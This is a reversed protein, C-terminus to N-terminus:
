VLKEFPSIKKKKEKKNFIQVTLWVFWAIELLWHPSSFQSITLIIGVYMYVEECMWEPHSMLLPSVQYVFLLSSHFSSRAYSFTQPKQPRDSYTCLWPCSGMFSVYMQISCRDWSRSDSVTFWVLWDALQVCLLVEGSLVQVQGTQQQRIRDRECVFLLLPLSVPPSSAVSM